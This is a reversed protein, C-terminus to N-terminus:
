GYVPIGSDFINDFPDKYIKNWFPKMNSRSKKEVKKKPSSWKSLFNGFNAGATFGQNLGDFAYTLTNVISSSHWANSYKAYAENNHKQQLNQLDINSQLDARRNEIQQNFLNVIRGGESYDQKLQNSDRFAQNATDRMEDIRFMGSKLNNVAQMISIERRSEQQEHMVNLDQNFEDENQQLLNEASNSGARTGSLALSNKLAGQSNLFNKKGQQEQNLLAEDDLASQKMALNFARGTLSEDVDAQMNIREGQNYIDSAKRFAEEQEIKFQSKAYAIDREAKEKAAKIQAERMELDARYEAYAKDHEYAEKTWGSIINLGLGLFGFIGGLLFEM